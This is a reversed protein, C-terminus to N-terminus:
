LLALLRDLVIDVDELSVRGASALDRQRADITRVIHARASAVVGADLITIAAAVPSGPRPEGVVVEVTIAMSNGANYDIIM